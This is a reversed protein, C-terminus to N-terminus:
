APAGASAYLSECVRAATEFVEVLAPAALPDASRSRWREVQTLAATRVQEPDAGPTVGLAVLGDGLLLRDLDAREGDRVTVIGSAVLHM